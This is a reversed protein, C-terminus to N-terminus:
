GEKTLEPLYKIALTRKRGLSSLIRRESYRLTERTFIDRTSRPANALTRTAPTFRNALLRQQCNIALHTQVDYMWLTFHTYTEM